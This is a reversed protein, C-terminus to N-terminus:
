GLVGSLKVHNRSAYKEQTFAHFRFQPMGTEIRSISFLNELLTGSRYLPEHLGDGMPIRSQTIPMKTTKSQTFIFFLASQTSNFFPAHNSVSQRGRRSHAFNKLLHIRSFVKLICHNRLSHTFIFGFWKQTIGCFFYLFPQM